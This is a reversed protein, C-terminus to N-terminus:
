LALAFIYHLILGVHLRFHRYAGRLRMGDYIPGQVPPRISTHSAPALHTSSSSHRQQRGAKQRRGCQLSNWKQSAGTDHYGATSGVSQASFGTHLASGYVKKGQVEPTPYKTEAFLFTVLVGGKVKPLTFFVPKPDRTM